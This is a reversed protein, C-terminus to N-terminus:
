MSNHPQKEIIYRNKVGLVSVLMLWFIVDPTRQHGYAKIEVFQHFFNLSL